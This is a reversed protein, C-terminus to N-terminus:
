DDPITYTTEPKSPPYVILEDSSATYLVGKHSLYRNNNQHVNISQLSLCGIFAYNGISYVSKPISVTTVKTCNIFANNGISQIGEKIEITQISDRENNWKEKGTETSYDEIKGNGEITLLGTTKDLTWTCNVGCNNNQSFVFPIIFLLIFFHKM